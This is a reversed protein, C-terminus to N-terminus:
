KINKAIMISVPLAVIFGAAIASVLVTTSTGMVLAAVAGCGGLTPAAVIYIFTAFKGMTEDERNFRTKVCKLSDMGLNGQIQKVEVALL